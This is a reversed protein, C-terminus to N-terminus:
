DAAPADVLLGGNWARVLLLLALTGAACMATMALFAHQGFRAYLLGSFQYLVAAAAGTGLASYLSQGLAMGRVPLARQFFAMTGLHCAAFTGAHLAQLFALAVPDTTFAMATWRVLGCALGLGILGCAGLRALLWGSVLMILVEVAVSEGWLLGITVDDIGAARWTLTGFSYLVAHSTQCLGAAVMLLLFPRSRLLDRVGFPAPSATGHVDSPPLAFVLPAMIAIGAIGVYLIWPPGFRDVAVGCLFTGVIYAISPWLRVQGYVLGRARTETVLVSDYLANIPAWVCGWVVGVLLLALFSYALQYAGMMVLSALCLALLLGRLNGVRHAIFGLALTALVSMFQRSMFLTGIEADSIGRDHLWVPWYSVFAGSALFYASGYGALRLGLLWRPM